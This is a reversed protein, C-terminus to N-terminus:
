PNIQEIPPRVAVTALLNLKQGNRLVEIEVQSGPKVHAIQRMSRPADTAPIKDLSLILDGTQLGARHAPGDRDVGAVIIGGRNELGFSEALELTMPQVSLGLWGRIVQGHEIIQSMVEQVLSVPIAFGVGQSGGSQSFIATNIGILEGHANILAGGSNGPNIAADTQIFDEYTSLNLRNRGTASIIGMTVTQGIGFPNGIALCVDGVHINDSRGVTIAPLNDLDIKLVALDTEPDSGVVQARTERGDKLSVIIESAGATVHNNTVMYGRSDMIVASGLSSQIRRQDLLDDGFFRRFMPDDLLPHNSRGVVKSTYLNAVASSAQGVAAAYSSPGISTADTVPHASTSSRSGLNVWEPFNQVLLIALLLGTVVPWGFFRLAKSMAFPSQDSRSM